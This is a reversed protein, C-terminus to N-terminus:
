AVNDRTWGSKNKNVQLFSLTRNANQEFYDSKDQSNKAAESGISKNSITHTYIPLFDTDTYHYGEFGLFALSFFLKWIWESEFICSCTMLESLYPVYNSIPIYNKSM